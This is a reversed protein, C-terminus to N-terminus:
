RLMMRALVLHKKTTSPRSSESRSMFSLSWDDSLPPTASRDRSVEAAPRRDRDTLADDEELGM